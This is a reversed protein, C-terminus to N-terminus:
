SQRYTRRLEIIYSMLIAIVDLDPSRCTYVGKDTLYNMLTNVNSQLKFTLM